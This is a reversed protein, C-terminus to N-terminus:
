YGMLAEHRALADERDQLEIKDQVRRWDARGQTSLRDSDVVPELRLGDCRYCTVDYAGNFYDGAFDPDSDFDERGLGHADVSPNVHKGKGECLECVAFKVPLTVTYEVCDSDEDEAPVTAKATMTREDFSDFWKPKGHEFDRRDM